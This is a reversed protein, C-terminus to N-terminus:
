KQIRAFVIKNQYYRVKGSSECRRVAVCQMLWYLGSSSLTPKTKNHRQNYQIGRMIDMCPLSQKSSFSFDVKSREWIRSPSHSTCVSVSNWGLKSISMSETLYMTREKYNQVVARCLSHTRQEKINSMVMSM